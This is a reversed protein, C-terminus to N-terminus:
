KYSLMSLVYAASVGDWAAPFAYLDSETPWGDFLVDNYFTQSGAHFLPIYPLDEVINEQVVGYAEKKVDQDQTTAALAVAEDVAENSYRAYNTQNPELMTGVPQTFDTTFSNRYITYPDSIPTGFLAGLTMEYKGTGRMETYQDQTVTDTKAEIGAKKLQAAMLDAAANQDSWGEVSVLKFSARQGDKEYIGDSGLTWGADEMIAKAGETDAEDNNETPLGDKVWHEDRGPKTFTAAGKGALGYYAKENIEARDIAINMAQRITKDTQVGECGLEANSCTMVVTPNPSSVNLYGLDGKALLSDPQPVFITSYDLEGTQFLSEASANGEIGLYQVRNIKPREPDWYNPNAIVTYAADTVNEVMFPGTGVPNETNDFTVLDTVDGFVHEPVIYTAGLLSYENSFSPTNFTLKVTHDDVVEVDEVYDMQVGENTFSYVLDEPTLAEGDSWKVDKRMEVTLELGDDSWEFSEGLLGKPPTDEAKNYYFLPEYVGGMAAHLATPSYPNFNGVIPTQSGAYVVLTPGDKVEETAAADGSQDGGSAPKDSGCGALVGASLLAGAALVALTKRKRINM